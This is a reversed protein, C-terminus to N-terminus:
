LNQEKFMELLVVIPEQPSTGYRISMTERHLSTHFLSVLYNSILLYTISYCEILHYNIQKMM